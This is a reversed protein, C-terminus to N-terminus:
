VPNVSSLSASFVGPADSEVFLTITVQVPLSWGQGVWVAQPSLRISNWATTSAPVLVTTNTAYTTVTQVTTRNSFVFYLTHTGDTISTAFIAKSPRVPVFSQNFHVTVNRANLSAKQSLALSEIGNGLATYNLTLQIGSTGNLGLPSIRSTSLDTNSQSLKWDFPVKKGVGADLAWWKLGPNSLSPAAVDAKASASEGLLQGTLKDYIVIHFNYGRPVASLADPAQIIFSDSAGTALLSSSNTTWYYPLPGWKVFFNPSIPTSLLNRMTVGVLTAAGISDPDMVGNIQITTKATSAESIYAGSVGVFAITLSMIVMLSPTLRRRVLKFITNTPPNWSITPLKVTFLARINPGGLRCLEFVLPFVWYAMYNPFSRYYLFFLLIPFAFLMSNLGRYHRAYAYLLFSSAGLMLLIFFSSPLAIGVDLLFNSLGIGGPIQSPTGPLYPAVIDKWWPGPSAFIFPLNPLFFAMTAIGISTGLARIKPTPTEHWLRIMLFPAVVLAIQKAAVALGLSAWSAKPHRYWTLATVVLFFAWVSDTWSGAIVFSFLGFPALSASKYKSPVLAFIALVSALHFIFIGDRLDRLGVLYFPLVSLFDFSGDVGPTYFSPSFGFQDLLPKISFGYPSQLTLVKLVGMYTAVITDTMYTVMVVRSAVIYLAVVAVMQGLLSLQNARALTLNNRFASVLNFIGFGELALVLGLAM